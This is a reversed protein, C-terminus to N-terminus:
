AFFDYVMQRVKDYEDYIAHGFDKMMHLDCNLRKALEYPGQWGLVHDQWAGIVMTPAKIGDLKDYMDMKLCSKALIGFKAIDEPTGSEEQNRFVELFRDHFAQGYVRNTIDRNLLVRDGSDALRVWESFTARSVENQRSLTSVVVMKSVLEPNNVALYQAIMGGHSTGMIYANSLGLTKMAEALDKAMDEVGFYDPLNNRYDFLYVTYEEAFMNFAGAVADASLMVSLVSVGPIILMTKEGHGFSFYKMEFNETKVNQIEVKGAM